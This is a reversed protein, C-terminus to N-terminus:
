FGKVFTGLWIIIFAALLIFCAYPTLFSIAVVWNTLVAIIALILAVWWTSKKPANLRM